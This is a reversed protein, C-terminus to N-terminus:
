SRHLVLGRCELRRNTTARRDAGAADYRPTASSAADPALGLRGALAAQGIRGAIELVVVRGLLDEARVAPSPDPGRERERVDRQREPGDDDLDAEEGPPQVGPSSVGCAALVLALFTM